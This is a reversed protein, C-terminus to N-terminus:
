LRWYWNRKNSSQTYRCPSVMGGLYSVIIFIFLVIFLLIGILFYSWDVLTFGVNQTNCRPFIEGRRNVFGVNGGFRLEELQPLLSVMPLDCGRSIPSLIRDALEANSMTRLVVCKFCVECYDICLHLKLVEFNVGLTDPSFNKEFDM